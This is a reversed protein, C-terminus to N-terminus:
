EERKNKRNDYICRKSPTTLTQQTSCKLSIRYSLACLNGDNQKYPFLVFIFVFSFVFLYNNVFRVLFLCFFLLFVEVIPFPIALQLENSRDSNWIESTGCLTKADDIKNFWISCLQAAYETKANTNARLCSKLSSQKLYKKISRAETHNKKWKKNNSSKASNKEAHNAGGIGNIRSLQCKKWIINIPM